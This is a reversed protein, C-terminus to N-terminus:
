DKIKIVLFLYDGDNNKYNEMINLIYGSDIDKKLMHLGKEVELANSLSSFSSIGQRVKPDLYRKPNHKGAYLFLDELDPKIFFKETKAIVLDNQNLHKKIEELSPMQIMSDELMKPFYHHLWYGKMQDPTATFIVIKGDTKLVRRLSSFGQSLDRWHHLTLSAVIGDISNSLIELSEAKGIKWLISHDGTNAKKLMEKSPDIGIFQYGLADFKKTYNGTGCGIDLYTNGKIPDLLSRLRNFLYPDAKRTTNYGTGIIDYKEQM